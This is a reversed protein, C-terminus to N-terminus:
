QNIHINNKNTRHSSIYELNGDEAVVLITTVCMDTLDFQKARLIHETIMTIIIIM